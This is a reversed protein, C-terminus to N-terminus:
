SGDVGHRRDARGLGGWSVASRVPSPAATDPGFSRQYIGGTPGSLVAGSMGAVLVVESVIMAARWDVFVALFYIIAVIAATVGAVKDFLGLAIFALTSYLALQYIEPELMTRQIIQAGAVGIAIILAARWNGLATVACAALLFPWVHIQGGFLMSKAPLSALAIPWVLIAILYKM